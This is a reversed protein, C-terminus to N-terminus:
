GPDADGEFRFRTVDKPFAAWAFAVRPRFALVGPGEYDSPKMGYEPYKANSAAALRAALGPDPRPREFVGELIVVDPAADLNVSAEPNGELNRVWRTEPSGGVYLRGEVYLGDLPRVHPRGGPAITAVWYVRAETLRREVHSWDLLGSRSKPVGYESPMRPRDATPAHNETAPM